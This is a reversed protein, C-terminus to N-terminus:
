QKTIGFQHECYRGRGGMLHEAGQNDEFDVFRCTIDELDISRCTNDREESTLEYYPPKLDREESTYANPLDVPTTRSPLVQVTPSLTLPFIQTLESSIDPNPKTRLQTLTPPLNYPCIPTM